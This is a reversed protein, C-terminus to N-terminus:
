IQQVTRQPTTIRGNLVHHATDVLTWGRGTQIHSHGSLDLMLSWNAGATKVAAGTAPASPNKVAADAMEPTFHLLSLGQCASESAFAVELEDEFEKVIDAPTSDAVCPQAYPNGQKALSAAMRCGNKVYDVNWWDDFVIPLFKSKQASQGPAFSVASFFVLAVWLRQM